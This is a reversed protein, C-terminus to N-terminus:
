VTWGYCYFDDRQGRAQIELSRESPRSQSRHCCQAASAASEPHESTCRQLPWGLWPRLSRIHLNAWGFLSLCNLSNQMKYSTLDSVLSM